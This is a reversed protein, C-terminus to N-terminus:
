PAVPPFDMGTPFAAYAVGVVGPGTHCGMVPTFPVIDVPRRLPLAGIREALSEALEPAAGHTVIAELAMATDGARRVLEVIRDLGADVSRVVGDGGIEGDRVLLIPKLGLREGAFGRLRGIRGGRRLYTLTPIVAHLSVCGAMKEAAAVVDIAPSGAAALEACYRVLIGQAAAATRTDVVHVPFDLTRAGACAAEHGSSLSAALTLVVVESAGAALARQCAAAYAQPTAASTTPEEGAAMRRYFEDVDLDAGDLYEEDGFRVPLAVVEIGLRALDASPVTAVSDTVIGVPSSSMFTVM